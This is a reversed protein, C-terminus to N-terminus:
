IGSQIFITSQEPDIGTALWDVVMEMSSQEIIGPDAYHTTLAHWDAVFLFV